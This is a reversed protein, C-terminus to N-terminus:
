KVIMTGEDTRASHRVHIPVAFRQGFMVARTHLVGAGLSALEVMEEYSIRELRRAGPVRRPDATYVGDVDSYIECVGTGDTVGLYLGDEIPANPNFGPVWTCDGNCFVASYDTGRIGLVGVPTRVEYAQEDEIPGESGQRRPERPGRPVM